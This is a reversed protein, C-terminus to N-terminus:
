LLCAGTLLLSFRHWVRLGGAMPDMAELQGEMAGKEIVKASFLLKDKGDQKVKLSSWTQIWLCIQFVVSSPEDPWKNWFCALNRAKWIGWLIAAMGVALM